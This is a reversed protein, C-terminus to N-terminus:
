LEDKVRNLRGWKEHRLVHNIWEPKKSDCRVILGKTPDVLHATNIMPSEIWVVAHLGEETFVSVVHAPHKKIRAYFMLDKAKDLCNYFKENYKKSLIRDYDEIWRYQKMVLGNPATIHPPTHRPDGANDIHCGCLLALSAILLINKM